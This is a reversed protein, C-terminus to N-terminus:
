GSFSPNGRSEREPVPQSYFSPDVHNWEFPRAQRVKGTAGGAGLNKM